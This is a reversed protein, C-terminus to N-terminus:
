GTTLLTIHLSAPDNVKDFYKARTILGVQRRSLTHIVETMHAVSTGELVCDNALRVIDDEGLSHKVDNLVIRLLRVKMMTDPPPVHLKVPFLRVFAEDLIYPRTTAGIVTVLPRKAQINSMQVLIERKINQVSFTDSSNRQKM